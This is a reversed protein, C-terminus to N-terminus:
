AGPADFQLTVNDFGPASLTVEMQASWGGALGNHHHDHSEDACAIGEFQGDTELGGLGVAEIFDLVQERYQKHYDTAFCATPGRTGDRNLTQEALPTKEGWGNHQMLTYASLTIGKSKAYQVEAKMWQRFTNNTLQAKCMGCWGKAGFGIIALEYGTHSMQPPHCLPLPLPSSQSSINQACHQSAQHRSRVQDVFLRLAQSSSADTLMGLLPSENLPPALTRFMQRIGLGQRETETSDHLTVHVSLSTFRGGHPPVVTGPGTSGGYGQSDGYGVALLTYATYPVHLQKDCCQDYEPDPHWLAINRGLTAIRAHDPRVQQDFPTPNNAQQRLVTMHEPAWNPSRLFEYYLTEVIISSSSGHNAVSVWKRYTPLGDYMEYHVTVVVDKFLSSSTTTTSSAIATTPPVFDIALHLSHPPWAITTPAGHRPTWPFPAAPASTSHNRYRFASANATLNSLLLDADFFEFHGTPQGDCKGVDFPHAAGGDSSLSINAEPALARFYSRGSPIQRLDVTCFASGRSFFQREILGNSLTLVHNADPGALSTAIKPPHILWDTSQSPLSLSTLLLIM